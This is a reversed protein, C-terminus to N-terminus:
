GGFNTATASVADLRPMVVLTHQTKTSVWVRASSWGTLDIHHTHIPNREADADQSKHYSVITARKVEFNITITYVATLPARVAGDKEDRPPAVFDTHSPTRGAVENGCADIGCTQGWAWPVWAETIGIFDGDKPQASPQAAEFAANKFVRFRVARHHDPHAWYMSMLSARVGAGNFRSIHRPFHKPTEWGDSPLWNTYLDPLESLEADTPAPRYNGYYPSPPRRPKPRKSPPLMQMKTRRRPAPPLTHMANAMNAPVTLTVTSM